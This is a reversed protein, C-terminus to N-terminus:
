RNFIWDRKGFRERVLRSIEGHPIRATGPVANWATALAEAVASFPLRLNALFATHSRGERYEPARSPMRLTRSILSLDAELLISGHFLLSSQGRRQAHGAVKEGELTLDSIGEVRLKGRLLPQLAERNRQLIFSTAGRITTLTGVSPIRLILSFNLVGPLQLVAGGGTCRRFIPIDLRKCADVDVERSISNTYGAVVFPTAPEWLWLMEETEGRDSAELLAQDCALYEEPSPFTYRQRLV